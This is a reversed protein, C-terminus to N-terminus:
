ESSGLPDFLYELTSESANWVGLSPLVGLSNSISGISGLFATFATLSAKLIV